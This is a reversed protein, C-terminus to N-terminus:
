VLGRSVLAASAFPLTRREPWGYLQTLQLTHHCRHQHHRRCQCHCAWETDCCTAAAAAWGLPLLRQAAARPGLALRSHWGVEITKPLGAPAPQTEHRYPKIPCGSMLHAQGERHAQEKTPEKSHYDAADLRHQNKIGAPPPPPPPPQEPSQRRSVGRLQGMDYKSEADVM